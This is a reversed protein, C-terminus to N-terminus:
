HRLPRLSLVPAPPAPLGSQTAIWQELGYRPILIRRGLRLHPLRDQSILEYCLNRSIRLVRAAETVTLLLRRDESNSTQVPAQHVSSGDSM